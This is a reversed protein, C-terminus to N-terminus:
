DERIILTSTTLDKTILFETGLGLDWLHEGKYKESLKITKKKKYKLEQNM